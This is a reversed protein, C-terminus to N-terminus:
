FYIRHHYSPTFVLWIYLSDTSTDHAMTEHCRGYRFRSITKQGRSRKGNGHGVLKAQKNKLKGHVAQTPIKWRPWESCKDAAHIRGAVAIRRQSPSGCSRAVIGFRGMGPIRADDAIKQAFRIRNDQAKEIFLCLFYARSLYRCLRFRGVWALEYHHLLYDIGITVLIMLAYWQLFPLVYKLLLSHKM